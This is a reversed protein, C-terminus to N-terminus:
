NKLGFDTESSTLIRDAMVTPFKERQFVVKQHHFHLNSILNLFRVELEIEVNVYLFKNSFQIIGCTFQLSRGDLM